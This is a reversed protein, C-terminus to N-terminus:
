SSHSRIQVFGDLGGAKALAEALTMEEDEFTFRRDNTGGISGPSPTPAEFASSVISWL